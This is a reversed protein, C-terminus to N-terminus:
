AVPTFHHQKVQFPCRSHEVAGQLQLVREDLIGAAIQEDGAASDPAVGVKLTAKLDDARLAQQERGIEGILITGTTSGAAENFFGRQAQNVTLSDRM